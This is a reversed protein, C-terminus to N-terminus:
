RTFRARAAAVRGKALHQRASAKARAVRKTARAAAKYHALAVRGSVRAKTRAARTRARGFAM